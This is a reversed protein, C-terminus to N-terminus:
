WWSGAEVAEVRIEWILTVEGDAVEGPCTNSLSQIVRDLSFHCWLHPRRAPREIPRVSPRHRSSRRDISVEICPLPGIWCTVKEQPHPQPTAGRLPSGNKSRCADHADGHTMPQGCGTRGLPPPPQPNPGGGSSGACQNALLGHCVSMPRDPAAPSRASAARSRHCVSVSGCPPVSRGQGRPDTGPRPRSRIRCDSSRPCSSRPDSWAAEWHM